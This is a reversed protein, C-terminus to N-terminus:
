LKMIKEVEEKSDPCGFYCVDSIKNELKELESYNGDVLQFLFLTQSNSRKTKSTLLNLTEKDLNYKYTNSQGYKLEM